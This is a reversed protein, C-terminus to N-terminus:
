LEHWVSIPKNGPYIPHQPSGKYEKFILPGKDSAILIADRGKRTSEAEIEYQELLTVARDNM